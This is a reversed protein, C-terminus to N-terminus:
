IFSKIITINGERYNINKLQSIDKSKIGTVDFSIICINDWFLTTLGWPNNSIYNVCIRDNKGFFVYAGSVIKHLRPVNM